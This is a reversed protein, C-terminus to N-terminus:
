LATEVVLVQARLVVTDLGNTAGDSEAKSGAVTTDDVAGVHVFLAGPDGRTVQVPPGSKEVKNQGM